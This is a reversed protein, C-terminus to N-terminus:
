EDVSSKKDRRLVMLGEWDVTIMESGSLLTSKDPKGLKYAIKYLIGSIKEESPKKGYSKPCSVVLDGIKPSLSKATSLITPKLRLNVCIAKPVVHRTVTYHESNEVILDDQGVVVINCLSVRDAEHADKGLEGGFVAVLDGEQFKNKM